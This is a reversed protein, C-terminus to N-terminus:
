KLLFTVFGGVEWNSFFVSKLSAICDSIKLFVSGSFGVLLCFQVIEINLCFSGNWCHSLIELKLLLFFDGIQLILRLRPTWKHFVPAVDWFSFFIDTEIVLFFRQNWFQFFVVLKLIPVFDCIKLIRCFRASGFLSVFEFKPVFSVSTLFRNIKM